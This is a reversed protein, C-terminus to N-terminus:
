GQNGGSNMTTVRAFICISTSTKAGQAGWKDSASGKELQFPDLSFVGLLPRCAGSLASSASERADQAGISIPRCAAGSRQWSHQRQLEVDLPTSPRAASSLTSTSPSLPRRRPLHRQPRSRDWTVFKNPFSSCWPRTSVLSNQHYLLISADSVIEHPLSPRETHM